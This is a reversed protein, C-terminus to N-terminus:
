SVTVQRANYLELVIRTPKQLGEQPENQFRNRAEISLQKEISDLCTIKIYKKLIYVSETQILIRGGGKRGGRLVCVREGKEGLM